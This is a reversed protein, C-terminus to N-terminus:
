CFANKNMTSEGRKIVCQTCGSLQRAHSMPIHSIMDPIRYCLTYMANYGM